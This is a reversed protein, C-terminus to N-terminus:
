FELQKELLDLVNMLDNYYKEVCITWRSEDSCVIGANTNYHICFNKDLMIYDVMNTPNLTIENKFIDRIDISHRKLKVYSYDSPQLLSFGLKFSEDSNKVNIRNIQAYVNGAFETLTLLSLTIIVNGAGNIIGLQKLIFSYVNSDSLRALQLEREVDNKIFQKIQKFQEINM